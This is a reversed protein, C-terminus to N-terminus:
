RRRSLMEMRLSMAKGYADVHRPPSYKSTRESAGTVRSDLREREAARTLKLDDMRVAATKNETESATAPTVAVTLSLALILSRAMM